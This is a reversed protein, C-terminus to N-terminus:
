KAFARLWNKAMRLYGKVYHNFTSFVLFSSKIQNRVIRCIDMVDKRERRLIKFHILKWISVYKVGYVIMFHKPNDLIEDINLGMKTWYPNHVDIAYKKEIDIQPRCIIDLDRSDRINLLSLSSSGVVAMESITSPM